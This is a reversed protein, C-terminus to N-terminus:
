SHMIAYCQVKSALHGRNVHITLIPPLACLLTVRTADCLAACRECHYRNDGHLQEPAALVRSLGHGLSCAAPPKSSAAPALPTASATMTVVTAAAGAGAGASTGADEAMGVPVSLDMLAEERTSRFGCAECTTATELRGCLVRGLVTASAQDQPTLRNTSPQTPPVVEDSMCVLDEEEKQEQEKQPQSQM